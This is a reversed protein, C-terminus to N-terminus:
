SRHPDQIRRVASGCWRKFSVPIKCTNGRTDARSQPSSEVMFVAANRNQPKTLSDNHNYQIIEMDLCAKRGLILRIENNGLLRCDILCSM